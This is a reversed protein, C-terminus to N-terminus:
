RWGPYPDRRRADFNERLYCRAGEIGHNPQRFALSRYSASPAYLAAIAEIDRRPWADACTRRWREAADVALM